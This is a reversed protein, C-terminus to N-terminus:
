RQRDHLSRAPGAARRPNSAWIPAKTVVLPLTTRDIATFPTVLTTPGLQIEIRQNDQVVTGTLISAPPPQQGNTLALDVCSRIAALLVRKRIIGLGFRVILLGGRIEVTLSTLLVATVVLILLAALLM